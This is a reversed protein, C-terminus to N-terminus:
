SSFCPLLTLIYLFDTLVSTRMLALSYPIFAPLRLLSFLFAVLSLSLSLSRKKARLFLLSRVHVHTPLLIFARRSLSKYWRRRFSRLCSLLLFFFLFLSFSRLFSFLTLWPQYSELLPRCSSLLFFPRPVGKKEGEDRKTVEAAHTRKKEERERKWALSSVKNYEKDYHRWQSIVGKYANESKSISKHRSNAKRLSCLNSKRREGGRSRKLSFFVICQVSIRLQSHSSIFLPLDLSWTTTVLYSFPVLLLIRTM